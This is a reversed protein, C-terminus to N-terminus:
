GRTWLSGKVRILMKDPYPSTTDVEKLAGKAASYDEVESLGAKASKAVPSDDDADFVIPDM